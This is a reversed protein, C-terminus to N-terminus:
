NINFVKCCTGFEWIRMNEIKEHLKKTNDM